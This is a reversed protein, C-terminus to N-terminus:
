SLYAILCICQLCTQPIAAGSSDRRYKRLYLEVCTNCLVKHGCPHVTRMPRNVLCYKCKDETDAAPSDQSWDQSKAAIISALLKVQALADEPSLHVYRPEVRWNICVEPVITDCDNVLAFEDASLQGPDVALSFYDNPDNIM